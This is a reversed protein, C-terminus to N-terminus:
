RRAGPRWTVGFRMRISRTPNVTDTWEDTGAKFHSFKGFAVDVGGDLSVTRGIPREVGAGVSVYKGSISADITGGDDGTAKAALARSGYAATVYPTTAGGLPLNARGGIELHVLGWSGQPTDNPGTNQKALDISTFVGFVDNIGYGVTAGGGAGFTTNFEGDQNAGGGIALGPIAITHIGLLFGTPRADNTSGAVKAPSAASSRGAPRQAGSPTAITLAALGLAAAGITLSTM